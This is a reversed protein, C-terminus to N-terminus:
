AASEDAVAADLWAEVARAIRERIKLAAPDISGLAVLARADHRRALLAALDAAGHPLLLETEGESLGAAEGALRATRSTWGEGPALRLAQELVADEARAVWDAEAEPAREVTKSM